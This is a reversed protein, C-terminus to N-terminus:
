RVADMAGITKGNVGAGINPSKPSLEFQRKEANLHLPDAFISHKDLGSFQRWEDLSKFRKRQFATPHWGTFMVIAKSGMSLVREKPVVSDFKTGPTQPRLHTALNNYDCDFEKLQAKQGKRVEIVLVDNGEFAFDNNRCVSGQISYLLGAAGYLNGTCTNNTIRCGPSFYLWFGFEQRFLLNREGIFGPSRVVRVAKGTPWGSWFDNWIKCGAVTVNPSAELNIGSSGYWRIQLDHIEVYPANELNLLIPHQRNGDLIAEWKKEARIRIPAAKVGGRNLKAPSDYIGPKLVITDGPLTRDVAYQLTKWPDDATGKGGNNGEPSLSVTKIGGPKFVGDVTFTKGGNRTELRIRYHVPQGTSVSETPLALTHETQFVRVTKKKKIRISEVKGGYADSPGFDIAAFTPESTSFAVIAAQANAYVVPNAILRPTSPNQRFECNVTAPKSWNGSDDAVRVSVTSVKVDDPLTVMLNAEVPLPKRWDEDGVKWQMQAPKGAADRAEVELEFGVERTVFLPLGTKLDKGVDVVPEMARLRVDPPVDDRYGDGVAPFAGWPKRAQTICPSDKALRYDGANENIFRPDAILSNRGPIRGKWKKQPTEGRPTTMWYCNENVTPPVPKRGLSIPGSFGVVINYRFRCLESWNTNTLGHRAGIVTNHEVVYEGLQAKVFIGNGFGACLNNVVVGHRAPHYYQIGTDDQAYMSIMFDDRKKFLRCGEIRAHDGGVYVGGGVDEARCRIVRNNKGTIIFGLSCNSASCDEVTINDTRLDIATSWKSRARYNRFSIGRVTVYPRNIFMGCDAVSLGIKHASPPKGDSTHFILEEGTYTFSAPFHSVSTLDAVPRYRTRTDLEWLRPTEAGRYTHPISFLLPAGAIPKAASLSGGGDFIVEEGEAARILLPSEAPDLGKWNMLPLSNRYVGRRFVVESVPPARNLRDRLYGLSRIPKEATGPNGDSGTVAIHIVEGFSVWCLMSLLLAIM